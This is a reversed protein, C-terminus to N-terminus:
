RVSEVQKAEARYLKRVKRALLFDLLKPFWRNMRLMWKADSGIVTETWNRRIAKVIKSAVAEPEMGKEYEIKAKGDNRLMNDRLGTKTLGPVVLLVDIDFRAMEGRLSETMGCLAFKSASYEPWAPMAKRGCMSSVNVVAPENGETLHPIALRILEVPAFFNVEMIERVVHEESTSFHGWSAVGANNILLDLGGLQRLTEDVIRRRDSESVVDAVVLHAEGGLEWVAQQTKRLEAESRGVLVLRAKHRALELAVARGIGGSAGTLITRKGNLDRGM